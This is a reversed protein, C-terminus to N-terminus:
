LYIIFLISFIIIFYINYNFFIGFIIFICKRKYRVQFSERLDQYLRRKFNIEEGDVNALIAVSCFGDDAIVFLMKKLRM